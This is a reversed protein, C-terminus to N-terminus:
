RCRMGVDKEVFLKATYHAGACSEFTKKVGETGADQVIHEVDVGKQNAVSRMALQLWDLQQFSPTVISIM